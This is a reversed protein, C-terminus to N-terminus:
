KPINFMRVTELVIWITNFKTDSLKGDNSHSVLFNKHYKIRAIHAGTSLDSSQPLADFGKPPPFVKPPMNRLLCVMLTVDLDTSSVM